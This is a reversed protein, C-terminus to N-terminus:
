QTLTLDKVIDFTQGSNEDTVTWKVIYDGPELNDTGTLSLDFYLEKNQHHSILETMPIDLQRGFEAGNRDTLIMDATMKMGYLKTGNEDTLTKYTYDAPESYIIVEDGLKFVNSPRETYVGYGEPESSVFTDFVSRFITENAASTQNLKSQGFVIQQPPDQQIALITFLFSAASIGLLILRVNEKMIVFVLLQNMYINLRNLSAGKAYLYLIDCVFTTRPSMEEEQLSSRNGKIESEQETSVL